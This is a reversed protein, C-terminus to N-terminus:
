AAGRARKRVFWVYALTTAAIFPIAFIGGVLMGVVVALLLGGVPAAFAVASRHGLRRLAFVIATVIVLDGIGVVPWPHGRVPVSLCLYQFVNSADRDYAAILRATVGVEFSVIDAVAGAICFSALAPLSGVLTGLLSGLSLAVIMVATDALILGPPRVVLVVAYAVLAAGTFAAIRATRLRCTYATGGLLLGAGALCVALAIATLLLM